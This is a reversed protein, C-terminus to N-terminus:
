SEEGEIEGEGNREKKKMGESRNKNGKKLEQDTM